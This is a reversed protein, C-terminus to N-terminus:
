YAQYIDTKEEEEVEEKKMKKRFKTYELIFMLNKKMESLSILTGISSTDQAM